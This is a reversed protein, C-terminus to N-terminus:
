PGTIADKFVAYDALDITDTEDFDFGCLCADLWDPNSEEANFCLQLCAFDGLDFDGDSDFDGTLQLVDSEYAGMDVRCGQLRPQGDLDTEGPGPVFGPDGTNICPSDPMLRLDDDATGPIDDPGDADVFMPDDGIIGVGGYWEYGGDDFGQICTHSLASTSSLGLQATLGTGEDDSNGWLVSNTLIAGTSVGDM